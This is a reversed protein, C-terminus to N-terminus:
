YFSVTKTSLVYTLIWHIIFFSHHIYILVGTMQIPNQLVEEVDWDAINLDTWTHAIERNQTLAM